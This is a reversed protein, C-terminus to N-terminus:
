QLAVRMTFSIGSALSHGSTHSFTSSLSRHFYGSNGRKCNSLVRKPLRVPGVFLICSSGSGAQLFSFPLTYNLCRYADAAAANAVIAAAVAVAVDAASEVSVQLWFHLLSCFGGLTSWIVLLGFRVEVLSLRWLHRSGVAPQTRADTHTQSTYYWTHHATFGTVFHM